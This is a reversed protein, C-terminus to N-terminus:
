SPAPECEMLGDLFYKVGWNPFSWPMYKGWLPVSGPLAGALPPGADVPVQRAKLYDMHRAASELWGGDTFRRALRAAAGAWQAMGVVCRQRSVPRWDGDYSSYLLGDRSATGQIARALNLYAAEVTKDPAVADCDMLGELVYVITHLFPPADPSFSAEEFWGNPRQRELTWRVNADAAAQHNKRRTLAGLAMLGASVKVYYAHPADNYAHRIWRGDGEQMRCLWDGARSAAELFRPDGTARHVSVLGGLIQGTDFVFASGDPGNFSGDENQIELLWLLAREASARYRGDRLVESLRFLTPVIYGTTEPYPPRWGSWVSYSHAYGGKGNKQAELLWDGAARLHVATGHVKTNTMSALGRLLAGPNM